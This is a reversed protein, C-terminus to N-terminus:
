TGFLSKLRSLFGCQRQGSEPQSEDDEFLRDIRDGFSPSHLSCYEQPETGEMHAASEVDPRTSNAMGGTLRDINRFAIGPPVDFKSSGRAMDVGSQALIAPKEKCAARRTAAWSRSASSRSQWGGSTKRPGPQGRRPALVNGELLARM